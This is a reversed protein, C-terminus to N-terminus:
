YPWAPCSAQPSTGDLRPKRPRFLCDVEVVSVEDESHFNVPHIQAPVFDARDMFALAEHLCWTGQYLQMVPLEMLVGCLGPLTARAGLLVQREFGQTDIKLFINGSPRPLVEDLTRVEIQESRRSVAAPSYATAAENLPLLSSFVSNDSVNITTREPAAGLAFNHVEWDRDARANDALTAFVCSVPEFSKIKGKYGRERLRRAFQGENAGVDLVLDVNRDLLFDM